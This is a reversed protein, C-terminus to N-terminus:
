LRALRSAELHQRESEVCPESRLRCEVLRELTVRALRWRIEPLSHSSLRKRLPYLFVDAVCDKPAPRFSDRDAAYSVEMGSVGVANNRAKWSATAPRNESSRSIPRPPM